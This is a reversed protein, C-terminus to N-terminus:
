DKLISLVSISYPKKCVIGLEENSKNLINFEIKAIKSARKIDEHLTKPCNNSIYVKATKGFKLNKLTKDTGIVLKKADLAKKIDDIKM